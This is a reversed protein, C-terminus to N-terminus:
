TRFRQGSNSHSVPGQTYSAAALTNRNIDYRSTHPRKRPVDEARANRLLEGIESGIAKVTSADNRKDASEGNPARGICLLHGYDDSSMSSPGPPFTLACQEHGGTDLVTSVAGFLCPGAGM